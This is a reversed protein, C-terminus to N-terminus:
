RESTFAYPASTLKFRPVMESDTNVVVGLWYQKNFLLNLPTISGLEVDLIGNEIAVNQQVEQWLVTGGTEVDYLKFSLTFTGNLPAGGSDTLAGQFRILHPVTIVLYSYFEKLIPRPYTSSPVTEIYLQVYRAERNIERTEGNSSVVGQIATYVNEWTTGDSSIQINYRTPTYTSAYWLMNIKDIQQIAGTDFRIWWPAANTAGSWYTGTNNDIAKSASYSSSYTSSATASIVTIKDDRASASQCTFVVAIALVISIWIIKKM